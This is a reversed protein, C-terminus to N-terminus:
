CTKIRGYWVGWMSSPTKADWNVLDSSEGLMIVTDDIMLEMHMITGDPMDYRRLESADFIAKMLDIFRQADKM